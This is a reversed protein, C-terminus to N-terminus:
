ISIFTLLRLAQLQELSAKGWFCQSEQTFGHSTDVQISNFNSQMSIGLMLTVRQFPKVKCWVYILAFLFGDTIFYLDLIGGVITMMMFIYILLYWFNAIDKRQFIDNEASVFCFYAFYAQVVFNFNMFGLFLLSTLPRWLQLSPYIVDFTYYITHIDLLGMTLLVTQLTALTLFTKTVIPRTKYWHLFDAIPDDM